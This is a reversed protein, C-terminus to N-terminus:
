ICMKFGISNEPYAAANSPIGIPYNSEIHLDAMPPIPKPIKINKKSKHCYKVWFIVGIMLIAVGVISGIVIGVIAGVNLDLGSEENIGVIAGGSLDSKSEKNCDSCCQDIELKTMIQTGSFFVNEKEFNSCLSAKKQIPQCTSTKKLNCKVDRMSELQCENLTSQSCSKSSRLALIKEINARDTYNLLENLLVDIAVVGLVFPPSVSTDYVSLAPSTVEGAGNADSYVETWIVETQYIASSLFLYYNTMAQELASENALQLLFGNRSCSLSAVVEIKIDKGLVYSILTANANTSAELNSVINTLKIPDIEGETPEGDTFFLFNTQCAFNGIEDNKSDKYIQYASQFGQEYNTKGGASLNKIFSIMKNRNEPNARILSPQFKAAVTQFTVLGIWDSNTLTKIVNSASIKLMELKIGDMSGSIDLILIINKAGTVAAVYWPRTRPDYVECRDRGPFNRMVGNYSGFFQWKVNDFNSNISRFDDILSESSCIIEKIDQDNSNIQSYVDALKVTTTSLNLNRGPCVCKSLTIFKNCSLSPLISSCSHYSPKCQSSCRNAFSTQFNLAAQKLSSEISKFYTELDVNNSFSLDFFIILLFYLFNM